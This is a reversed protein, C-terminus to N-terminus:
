PQNYDRHNHHFRNCYLVIHHLVCFIIVNTLYAKQVLQLCGVLCDFASKCSESKRADCLEEVLDKRMNDDEGDDDDSDDDYDSKGTVGLEEVLDWLNNIM